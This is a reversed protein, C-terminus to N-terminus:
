WIVRSIGSHNSYKVSHNLNVGLTFRNKVRASLVKASSASMDFYDLDGSFLTCYFDSKMLDTLLGSFIDVERSSVSHSFQQLHIEHLDNRNKVWNSVSISSEKAINVEIVDLITSVKKSLRKSRRGFLPHKQEEEGSEANGIDISSIWM